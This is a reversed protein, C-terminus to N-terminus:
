RRIWTDVPKEITEKDDILHDRELANMDVIRHWGETSRPPIVPANPFGAVNEIEGLSSQNLIDVM